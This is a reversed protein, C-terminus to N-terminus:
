KLYLEWSLLSSKEPLLRLITLYVICEYTFKLYDSTWIRYIFYTERSLHTINIWKCESHEGDKVTTESFPSTSKMTM